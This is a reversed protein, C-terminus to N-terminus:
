RAELGDPNIIDGVDEFSERDRSFISLSANFSRREGSSHDAIKSRPDSRGDFFDGVSRVGQRDLHRPQLSLPGSWNRQGRNVDKLSSM